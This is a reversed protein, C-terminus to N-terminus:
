SHRLINIFIAIYTKLFFPHLALSNFLYHWAETFQANVQMRRGIGYEIIGYRFRVRIRDRMSLLQRERFFLNVVYKEADAQKIASGTNANHFRYGGLIQNVFDVKVGKKALKLWLHYDEATAIKADESFRGVSEVLEKQVVTASTMICNGKYLMADFTARRTPGSLQDRKRRGFWRLGHCVLGFGNNLRSVCVALKEPFWIDDSDLFALYQGRALSIGRNRSAGIIGNNRFNVLRIRPDDCAEVVAVSDDDSFNNIVVAEWDTFTQSCVSQLSENLFHAQNYTPIVVTVLPTISM